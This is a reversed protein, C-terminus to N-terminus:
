TPLHPARVARTAMLSVEQRLLHSAWIPPLNPLCLQQTRRVAKNVLPLVVEEELTQLNSNNNNTPPIAGM